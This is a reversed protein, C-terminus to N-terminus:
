FNIKGIEDDWIELIRLYNTFNGKSLSVLTAFIFLYIFLTMNIQIGCVWDISSMDVVLTNYIM